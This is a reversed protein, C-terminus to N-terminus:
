PRVLSVRDETTFGRSLQDDTAAIDIRVSEVSEDRSGGPSPVARTRAERATGCLRQLVVELAEIWAELSGGAGSNGSWPVFLRVPLASFFQVKEEIEVAGSEERDAHRGM